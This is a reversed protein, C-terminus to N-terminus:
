NGRTTTTPICASVYLLAAALASEYDTFPGILEGGIGRILYEDIPTHHILLRARDEINM